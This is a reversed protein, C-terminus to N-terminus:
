NLKLLDKKGKKKRKKFFEDVIVSQPIGKWGEIKEDFIGGVFIFPHLHLNQGVKGGSDIGSRLLLEPTNVAGGSVVVTDAKIYISHTPIRNRYFRAYVGKARGNEKWFLRSLQLSDKLRPVMTALIKGPKKM